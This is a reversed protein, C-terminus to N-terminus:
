VHVESFHKGILLKYMDLHDEKMPQSICPVNLQTQLLIIKNFLSTNTHFYTYPLLLTRASGEGGPGGAHQYDWLAPWDRTSFFSVATHLLIRNPHLKAMFTRYPIPGQGRGGKKFSPCLRPYSVLLRLNLIESDSYLRSFYRRIDSLKVLLVEDAFLKHNLLIQRVEARAICYSCLTFMPDHKHKWNIQKKKWRCARNTSWVPHFLAPMHWASRDWQTLSIITLSRCM